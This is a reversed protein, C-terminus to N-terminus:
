LTILWYLTFWRWVVVYWKRAMVEAVGYALFILPVPEGAYKSNKM